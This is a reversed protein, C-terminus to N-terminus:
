GRLQRNSSVAKTATGMSGRGRMLDQAIDAKIADVIKVMVSGDEGQSTEVRAGSNNQVNVKVIPQAATAAAANSHAQVVPMRVAPTVYGGDAYGRLAGSHMADLNGLGIRNVAAASMVYEGRHVIGAPENRGGAGTWGGAAFGPGYLGTAGRSFDLPNFSGSTGGALFSFPNFGGGGTLGGFLGSIAKNMAAELLKDVLKNAQNTLAEAASKGARIDALFGTAASGLLDKTESLTQNLRMADAQASDLGLGSSRLRSAIQAEGSTRGIQSREFSIDSDLKSMALAQAAARRAEVEKMISVAMADTVELGRKKANTELDIQLRMAELASGGLGSLRIEEEMQRTRGQATVIARQFADEGATSAAGGGKKASAESAAKIEDGLLKQSRREFDAIRANEVGDARMKAAVKAREAFRDNAEATSRAVKDLSDRYVDREAKSLDEIAKQATRAARETTLAGESNLRITPAPGVMENVRSGVLKDITARDESLRKQLNAVDTRSAFDNRGQLESIQREYGAVNAQLTAIDGVKRGDGFGAVAATIGRIQGAVGALGQAVRASIGLLADMEAGLQTLATGANTSAQTITLVTGGFVTDIERSGKLFADFVRDASLKGEEGFKKLEGVGIGFEAAILRALPPAGELVSNLEDGRLVGAAFAQNLQLIAGSATAASQGGVTFAKSITETVRAVDAQSKGLDQTSKTIGSYLDIVPALGTRSRLAIDTLEGMRRNLISQDEGAARLRNTYSTWEDGAKAIGVSMASISAVLATVGAAGASLGSLGAAFGAGPVQATIPDLGRAVGAGAGDFRSRAQSSALRDNANAAALTRAELQRLLDNRREVSVLGQSFARDLTRTGAIFAQERRYTDDVQRSLREFATRTSLTSRSAKDSVAAVEAHAKGVQRLNAATEALGESRGVIRLVEVTETAAM